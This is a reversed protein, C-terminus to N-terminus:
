KKIPAHRVHTHMCDLMGHPFRFCPVRARGLLCRMFECFRLRRTHVHGARRLEALYKATTPHMPGSVAEAISIARQLCERAGLLDGEDGMLSGFAALSAATNPHDPGWAREHIAAAREFYSKPMRWGAEVHAASRDQAPDLLEFGRQGIGDALIALPRDRRPQHVFGIHLDQACPVVQIATNIEIALHESQKPEANAM